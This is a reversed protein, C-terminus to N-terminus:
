RRKIEKGGVQKQTKYSGGKDVWKRGARGKEGKLRERGGKEEGVATRGKDININGGVEM